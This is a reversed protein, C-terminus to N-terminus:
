LLKKMKLLLYKFFYVIYKIPYIIVIYALRFIKIIILIVNRIAIIFKKSALKFYLFLGFIIGIFTYYRLNGNNAYLFFVFTIFACLIWYLVDSIALLIKNPNHYILVVRYIDFLMGVAIGAIITSLFYFLQTNVPLIM